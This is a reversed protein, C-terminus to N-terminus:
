IFAYEYYGQVEQLFTLMADRHKSSICYRRPHPSICKNKKIYGIGREHQHADAHWGTHSKGEWRGVCKRRSHRRSCPKRRLHDSLYGHKPVLRFGDAAHDMGLGSGSVASAGQLWGVSGWWCCKHNSIRNRNLSFVGKHFRKLKLKWYKICYESISIALRVLTLNSLIHWAHQPFPKTFWIHIYIDIFVCYTYVNEKHPWHAQKIECQSFLLFYSPLHVISISCWYISSVPHFSDLIHM